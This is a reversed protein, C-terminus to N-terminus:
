HFFLGPFMVSQQMAVDWTSAFPQHVRESRVFQIFVREYFAGDLSSRVRTCPRVRELRRTGCANETRKDQGPSRMLIYRLLRAQIEFVSGHSISFFRPDDSSYGRKFWAYGIM